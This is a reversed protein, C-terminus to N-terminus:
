KGQQQGRGSWFKHCLSDLGAWQGAGVAALFLMAACEVLQYGFYDTIAGVVWPPQMSMVSLLFVAGVVGALRTMFGAMMCVGVGTIVCTMLVNVRELDVAKPDSVAEDVQESLVGGRQEETLLGRLSEAYAADLQDIAAVWARPTLDTDWAREAIREKEFPIEDAGPKAKQQELRWLEHRYEAIEMTNQAIEDAAQRQYKRLLGQSAIAQDDTVGELAVFRSQAKEWDAAIEGFWGSIPLGEPLEIEVDKGAKLEKKRQAVYGEVWARLEALSEPTSQEAVALHKKWQHTDPLKSQYFGALPGKSLGLLVKTPVDVSWEQTSENYTIKKAGESLFHWGVCVRLLVIALVTAGFGVGVRQAAKDDVSM